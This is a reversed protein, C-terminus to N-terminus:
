KKERRNWLHNGRVIGEWSLSNISATRHDRSKKHNKKDKMKWSLIEGLAKSRNSGYEYTFIIKILDKLIKYGSNQSYNSKGLDERSKRGVWSRITVWWTWNTSGMCEQIHAKRSSHLFISEEEGLLEQPLPPTAAAQCPHQSTFRPTLCHALERAWSNELSFSTNEILQCSKRTEM